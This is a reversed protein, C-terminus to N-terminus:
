YDCDYMLRKKRNIHSDGMNYNGIQHKPRTLSINMHEINNAEIRDMYDEMARAMIFIIIFMMVIIVSLVAIITQNSIEM